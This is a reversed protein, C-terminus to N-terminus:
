EVRVYPNEKKEIAITTDPGHGTMVRTADPLVFFKEKISSLLAAEDGGPLDCRGISGALLTDGAILVPGNESREPSSQGPIPSLSHSFALSDFFLVLHGPAHGPAHIIRGNSSGISLTDGERLIVDPEPCNPYESEPLGFMSAQRSISGRMGSEFEGEAYLPPRSGQREELHKMLAPIGGAHDLHAHTLFVGEVSLSQEDLYATIREVEGGPDVVVCTDTESDSLVRANQYFPTVVITHIRLM